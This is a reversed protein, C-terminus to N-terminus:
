WALTMVARRQAGYRAVPADDSIALCRSGLKLSVPRTEGTDSPGGSGGAVDCTADLRLNGAGKGTRPDLQGTGRELRRCVYHSSGSRSTTTEGIRANAVLLDGAPSLYADDGVGPPLDRVTVSEVDGDRKWAGCKGFADCQRVYERRSGSTFALDGTTPMRPTGSCSAMRLEAESEDTQETDEGPESSCAVLASAVLIWGSCMLATKRTM